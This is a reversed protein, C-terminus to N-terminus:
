SKRKSYMLHGPVIFAILWAIAEVLIQVNIELYSCLFALLGFVIGGAILLRHRLIRGTIVIAYAIFVMFIPHQLM